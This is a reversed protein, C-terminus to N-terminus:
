KPETAHDLLWRVDRDTATTHTRLSAQAPHSTPEIWTHSEVHGDAFSLNGARNHRNAPFDIMFYPRPVGIGEPHGTHSFDTAFSGDNITDAREDVFAFINAPVSIDHLRQYVVHNTGRGEIWRPKGIKPDRWANMRCNLSFSRVQKTRDAPCRYSAAQPVYRALLSAQPDTMLRVDQEELNSAMNGSIWGGTVGVLDGTDANPVLNDNNEEAYLAWGIHLQRINNMCGITQGKAKARSMAPLLMAALLGIIALVVLLELL